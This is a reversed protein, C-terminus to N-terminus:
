ILGSTSGERTTSRTMAFKFAFSGSAAGAATKEVSPAPWRLGPRRTSRMTSLTLGAANSCLVEGMAAVGSCPGRSSVVGVADVGVFVAGLAVGLTADPRSSVVKGIGRPPLSASPWITPRVMVPMGVPLVNSSASPRVGTDSPWVRLGESAAPKNNLGAGSKLPPVWILKVTVSLEPATDSGCLTAILTTATLSAGTANASAAVVSSSVAM